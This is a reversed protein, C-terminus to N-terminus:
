NSDARRAHGRSEPMLLAWSPSREAAAGQASHGPGSHLGGCGYLDQSRRLLRDERVESSLGVPYETPVDAASVTGNEQCTWHIFFVNVTLLGHSLQMLYDDRKTTLTRLVESLTCSCAPSRGVECRHQGACDGVAFTTASCRGGGLALSHGATRPNTCRTCRSAKRRIHGFQGIRNAPRAASQACGFSQGPRAM